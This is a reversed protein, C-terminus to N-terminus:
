RSLTTQTGDYYIIFERTQRLWSTQKCMKPPAESEDDELEVVVTTEKKSLTALTTVTCTERQRQKRRLTEALAQSDM